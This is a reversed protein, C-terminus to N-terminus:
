LSASVVLLAASGRGVAVTRRLREDECLIQIILPPQAPLQAGARQGVAADRVKRAEESHVRRRTLATNHHSGHQSANRWV